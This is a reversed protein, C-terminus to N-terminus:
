EADKVEAHTDAEQKWAKTVEDDEAPTDPVNLLKSLQNKWKKLSDLQKKRATLEVTTDPHDPNKLLDRLDCVDSETKTIWDLFIDSSQVIRDAKARKKEIREKNKEHIALERASSMGTHLVSDTRPQRSPM